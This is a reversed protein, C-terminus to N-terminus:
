NFHNLRIFVRISSFGFHSALRMYRNIPCAALLPLYQKMNDPISERGCLRIPMMNVNIGTPPPFEVKAVVSAYIGGTEIHEKWFDVVHSYVTEIIEIPLKSLRSDPNYHEDILMELYPCYGDHRDDPELKKESNASCKSPAKISELHDARIKWMLYNRESVDDTFHQHTRRFNFKIPVREAIAKYDLSENM